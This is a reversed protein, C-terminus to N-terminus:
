GDGGGANSTLRADARAFGLAFGQRFDFCGGLIVSFAYDSLNNM